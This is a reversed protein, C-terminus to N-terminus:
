HQEQQCVLRRARTVLPNLLLCHAANGHVAARKHSRPPAARRALAPVVTVPAHGFHWELATCLLKGNPIWFARRTSHRRIISCRTCLHSGRERLTMLRNQVKASHAGNHMAQQQPSQPPRPQPPCPQQQRRRQQKSSRVVHGCTTDLEPRTRATSMNTQVRVALPIALSSTRAPGMATMKNM